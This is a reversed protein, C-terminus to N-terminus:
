AWIRQVELALLGLGGPRRDADVIMQLEAVDGVWRASTAPRDVDEGFVRPQLRCIAMDLTRDVLRPPRRELTARIPTASFEL